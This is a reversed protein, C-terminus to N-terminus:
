RMSFRRLMIFFVVTLIGIALMQINYILPITEILMLPIEVFITVFYYCAQMFSKIGMNFGYANYEGVTYLKIIFVKYIFFTVSIIFVPSIYKFMLVLSNNIKFEKELPNEYIVPLLSTILLLPLIIESSFLGLILIIYAFIYYILSNNITHKHLLMLSISWFLIPLGYESILYYNSFITYSAFFPFPSLLLFIVATSKGMTQKITYSVFIISLFWVALQMVIYPTPNDKFIAFLPSAIIWSIPRVHMFSNQMMEKFLHFLSDNAMSTVVLGLNAGVGFGGNVVYPFYTIVIIFIIIMILISM